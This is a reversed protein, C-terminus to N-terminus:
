LQKKFEDALVPKLWHTVCKKKEEIRTAQSMGLTWWEPGNESPRIQAQMELRGDILVIVIQPYPPLEDEVSTPVYVYKHKMIKYEKKFEHPMPTNSGALCPYSKVDTGGNKEIAIELCDCDPKTCKVNDSM